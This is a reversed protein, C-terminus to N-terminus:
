SDSSSMNGPSVEGVESASDSRGQHTSPTSVKAIEGHWTLNQEMIDIDLSKDALDLAVLAPNDCSLCLYHELM